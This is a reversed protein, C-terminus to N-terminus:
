HSIALPKLTIRLDKGVMRIDTFRLQVKDQLSRIAPLEFLPRAEHGMLVPAVYLLLEDILGASLMAGSLVPGAELLLDNVQKECALYRLVKKLFDGSETEEFVIIEVGQENLKERALKNEMTAFIMVDGAGTLIRAKPPTRLRRDLIVRLPRRDQIEIERVTLLPDDALVTNVGTMIASSRARLRQVDHRANEGTIWRSEGDAMATRGDTSMAQKCRVYPRGHRMRMEFGANLARAEAHMLGTYVTNGGAELQEIGKGAVLPNPDPTAIFINGVGAALLADTCPPTRGSHSCPELTVYCDADAADTGAAELAMIEAHPGGARRHWGEGIISGNRVLVCGVSPNPHTTYLGRGALQLARSM